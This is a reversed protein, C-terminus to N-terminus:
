RLVKHLYELWRAVSAPEADELPYDREVAGGSQVVFPSATQRGTILMTVALSGKVSSRHFDENSLEYSEDSAVSSVALEQCRVRRGLPIRRTLGDRGYDVRALESDADPDDLVEFRQDSINGSLVYSRFSWAHSHVDEVQPAMGDWFHLRVLRGDHQGLRLQWFGLVHQIALAQDCLAQLAANTRLLARIEEPDASETATEVIDGVLADIDRLIDAGIASDRLRCVAVTALRLCAIPRCPTKRPIFRGDNM